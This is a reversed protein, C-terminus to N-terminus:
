RSSRPLKITNLSGSTKCYLNTSVSKKNIHAKSIINRYQSNNQDTVYHYSQMSPVVSFLVFLEVFYSMGTLARLYKKYVPGCELFVPPSSREPTFHITTVKTVPEKKVKTVTDTLVLCIRLYTAIIELYIQTIGCVFCVNYKTNTILQM